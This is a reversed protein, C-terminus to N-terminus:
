LAFDAFIELLINYFTERKKHSNTPNKRKTSFSKENSQSNDVKIITKDKAEELGIENSPM